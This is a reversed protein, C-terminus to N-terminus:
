ATEARAKAKAAAGHTDVPNWGSERAMQMGEAIENGHRRLLDPAILKGMDIELQSSARKSLEYANDTSPPQMGQRRLEKYAPLDRDWKREMASQSTPEVRGFQVSRLKCGFCDDGHTGDHASL